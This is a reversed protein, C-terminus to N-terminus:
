PIDRRRCHLLIATSLMPCGTADDRFPGARLVDRLRSPGLADMPATVYLTELVSFGHARVLHVIEKRRYIRAHAFRRHIPGPLWSFFPVRNWPLLPLSAGHTEFIWWKNPVTLVFDGGPKLVRRVEDLAVAEDRVHELVEYSVAADVSADALPLRTGDYQVPSIGSAEGSSNRLTSLDDLDIDVAVFRRRAGALALTQAGNGCGFDLVTKGDLPVLSLTLRCRRALIEQGYRAPKGRAVPRRQAVTGGQREALTM